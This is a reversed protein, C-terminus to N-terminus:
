EHSPRIFRGKGAGAALEGSRVIREGRRWVQRVAAGPRMGEYLSMRHRYCLDEARVAEQEGFEVLALDAAAGVEIRGSKTGPRFRKAVNGAILAAVRSAFDPERRRLEGLFAPLAHQCGAIGGWIAFFDDGMKMSPPAPSHDTGITEVMGAQLAKWLREREGESRLPPACKARAGIRAADEAGFLLYHPCTEATVDVGAARMEGIVALGEASSVHVVHLAAGTEGAMECAMRISSVEAAIPRSALYSRMDRGAVEAAARELAAPDEAHVAVPLRWRRAREMGERLAKADANPFEAIGSPSLFAKFGIAGAEAMGDIYDTFGPCLGGWLAFDLVSKEGALKAKKRLEEADLVPPDSNLPMDFFCTGGGLALAAPGTTLGEWEARGPENFHVHADIFGPLLYLGTADVEEKAAGGLSRGIAAIREGSVAVDSGGEALGSANRIILDYDM